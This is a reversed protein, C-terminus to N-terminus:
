LSSLSLLSVCQVGGKSMLGRSVRAKLEAPSGVAPFRPQRAWPSASPLASGASRQPTYCLLAAQGVADQPRSQMLREARKAARPEPAQTTTASMAPCMETQNRIPRRM